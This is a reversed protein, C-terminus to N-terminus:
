TPTRAALAPQAISLDTAPLARWLLEGDQERFAFLGQSTVVYLRGHGAVLNVGDSAFTLDADSRWQWKQTGTQRDLAGVALRTPAPQVVHVHAYVHAYFLTQDSCCARQAVDSSSSLEARIQPACWIASGDSVRVACLKPGRLLYVVDQETLLLLREKERQLPLTRETAGDTARMVAILSGQPTHAKTMVQNEGAVAEVVLRRLASRWREVGTRADLAQLGSRANAVVYLVGHHAALLWYTGRDQDLHLYESLAAWRVLANWQALLRARWGRLNPKMWRVAGTRADLAFVARDSGCGVAFVREGDVVLAPPGQMDNLTTQWLTAGDRVRLATIRALPYPAGRARVADGLYVAEGSSVLCPQGVPWNVPTLHMWLLAGDDARLATVGVLSCVVIISTAQAPSRHETPAEPPM